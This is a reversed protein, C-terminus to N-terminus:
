SQLIEKIRRRCDESRLIEKLEEKVLERLGASGMVDTEPKCSASAVPVLAGDGFISLPRLFVPREGKELRDLCNYLEDRLGNEGYFYARLKDKTPEKYSQFGLINMENNEIYNISESIIDYLRWELTGQRKHEGPAGGYPNRLLILMDETKSDGLKRYVMIRNNPLGTRRQVADKIGKTSFFGRSFVLARDAKTPDCPFLRGDEGLPFISGPKGLAGEVLEPEDGAYDPQIHYCPVLIPPLLNEEKAGDNREQAGNKEKDNSEDVEWFVRRIAPSDDQLQDGPYNRLDLLPKLASYICADMSSYNGEFRQLLIENDVLILGDIGNGSKKTLLDYMAIVAGLDRQGEKAQRKDTGKETLIGLAFIPFIPEETRVYSTIPNIFGTGTGGGLSAVFLISDCLKSSSSGKGGSIKPVKILGRFHSSISSINGSGSELVSDARDGTRKSSKGISIITFPRVGVRWMYGSLPNEDSKFEKLCVDKLKSDFEFVEFIGKLYEARRDFGPAKLDFGYTESVYKRTNSGEGVNGHCILYPPYQGQALSGYYDQRQTDQTASELWLGKVEGYALHEGFQHGILNVDQSQLFQKLINGGAGGIGVLCPRM